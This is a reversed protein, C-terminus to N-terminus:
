AQGLKFANAPSGAIVIIGFRRTVPMNVMITPTKSATQDALNMEVFYPPKPM